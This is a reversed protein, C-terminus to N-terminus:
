PSLATQLQSNIKLRVHRLMTGNGQPSGLIDLVDSAPNGARVTTTVYQNLPMNLPVRVMSQVVGARVEVLRNESLPKGDPATGNVYFFVFM